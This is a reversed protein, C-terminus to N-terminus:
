SEGVQTLAALEQASLALSAAKAFSEVQAVSTASAIPATVGERAILWALAVEAPSASHATAVDELADLLRMGRETMYKEVFSRRKRGKLDAESRYKGSLFGSALSFYTVVGLNRELCLERLSGDFGDRDYLNYEPQVVQYEPLGEAQAVQLAEGLLKADHNSAGIARIKGAKLLKDYAGLTEAHGVEPDPWHSFYVDISEVRLRRLSAEVAESIWRPSLGKAGPTGLDAGVKTFLKIKDRVGPRASFWKGLMAESEGGKLGEAWASYVDATDIANFGCEVFADLVRFSEKEDTTWGLVNGGFVVPAIEFGTTGLKRMKMTQEEKLKARRAVICQMAGM